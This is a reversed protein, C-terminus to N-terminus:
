DSKRKQHRYSCGHRRMAKSAWRGKKYATTWGAMFDRYRSTGYGFRATAEKVATTYSLLKSM